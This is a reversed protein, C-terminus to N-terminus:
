QYEIDDLYFIAGEPGVDLARIVVVFAAIVQSLNRGRLDLTYQRWDETLTVFDGAVEFSAQYPKAPDTHGGAKFQVKPLLGNKDRLGRAWVSVQRYGRGNLNLGPYDGFNLKAGGPLHQWAIAAWSEPGPKYGLKYCTPPSHPAEFSIELFMYRPKGQRDVSVADGMWGAPHFQTDVALPGQPASPAAGGNVESDQQGQELVRLKTELVTTGRRSAITCSVTSEGPETAVFTASPQDVRGEFRGKTTAWSISEGSDFTGTVAVAAREGVRMKEPARIEHGSRCSWTLLLACLWASRLYTAM